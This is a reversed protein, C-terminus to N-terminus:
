PAPTWSLMVAATMQHRTRWQQLRSQRAAQQRRWGHLTACMRSCTTFRNRRAWRCTAVRSATMWEVSAACSADYGVIVGRLGYRTHEVVQGVRFAIAPAKPAYDERTLAHLRATAAQLALLCADVDPSSHRGRFARRIAARVSGENPSLSATVVRPLTGMAHPGFADDYRAGLRLAAASIARTLRANAM